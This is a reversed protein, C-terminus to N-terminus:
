ISSSQSQYKEGSLDIRYTLTFGTAALTHVNEDTKSTGKLDAAEQDSLTGAIDSSM